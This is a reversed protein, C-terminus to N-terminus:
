ALVMPHGRMSRVFRDLMRVYRKDKNKGTNYTKGKANGFQDTYQPIFGLTTVGTKPDTIEGYSYQQSVHLWRTNFMRERRRSANTTKQYM